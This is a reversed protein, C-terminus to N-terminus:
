TARVSLVQSSTSTVKANGRGNFQPRIFGRLVVGVVGLRGMESLDDPFGSGLNTACYIPAVADKIRAVPYSLIVSAFIRRWAVINPLKGLVDLSSSTAM